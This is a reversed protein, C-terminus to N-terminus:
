GGLHRGRVHRAPREQHALALLVRPLARVLGLRAPGPRGRRGAHGRAVPRPLNKTELLVLTEAYWRRITDAPLERRPRRVRPPRTPRAVDAVRPPRVQGRRGETAPEAWRARFARLLLLVVALFLLM